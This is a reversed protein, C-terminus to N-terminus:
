ISRTNLINKEHYVKKTKKSLKFLMVSVIYIPSYILFISFLYDLAQGSPDQEIYNISMVLLTYLIMNSETPNLKRYLNNRVFGFIFGVLFSFVLSGFFGFYFLGFINHRANPGSILDTNYHHWFVQLGLNIPLEDWQVLRLAGLISRFLAMFGNDNINLYELTNGPLSMFFIDGTHIFRLALSILIETIDEFGSQIYLTFFAIPFATILLIISIKNFKKIARFNHNIKKSFLLTIFMIFIMLLVGAKSGSFIAVLLSFLVIFYDFIHYINKKNVVFIRYTAFCLSVISAVYIIRNLFGYGSGGSFIELRSELLLPIGSVYYVMLQTVIFLVSSFIYIFFAPSIGVNVVIRDDNLFDNKTIPKNLIFGVFFLIQTLVFSYFYYNNILNFHYLYLVTSYACIGMIMGFFLPDFISYIHKRLFIFVVIASLFIYLVAIDLNSILHLDFEYKNM